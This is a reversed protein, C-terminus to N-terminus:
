NVSFQYAHVKFSFPAPFYNPTKNVKYKIKNAVVKWQLMIWISIKEQGFQSRQSSSTSLSLSLRQTVVIDCSPVCLPPPLWLTKSLCCVILLSFLPFSPTYINIYYIDIPSLSHLFLENDYDRDAISKPNSEGHRLRVVRRAHYM